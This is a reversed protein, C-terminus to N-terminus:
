ARSRGLVLAGFALLSLMSPEPALSANWGLDQQSLAVNSLRVEDLSGQTFHDAGAYYGLTLPATNAAANAGGPNVSAGNAIGNIYLTNSTATHVGAVHYWTDVAPTINAFNGSGLVAQTYSDYDSGDGITFQFTNGGLFQVWFGSPTADTNRKSFLYHSGALTDFKVWGEITFDGSPNLSGANAVDWRSPGLHYSNNSASPEFPSDTSWSGAGQNVLAAHNANGSSDAAVVGAGEDFLWQGVTAGSAASVIGAALTVSLSIIHRM